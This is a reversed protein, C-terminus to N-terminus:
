LTWFLLLVCKKTILIIKNTYDKFLIGASLLFAIPQFQLEVYSM